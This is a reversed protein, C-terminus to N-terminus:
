DDGIDSEGRLQYTLELKRDLVPDFLECRMENEFLYGALLPVTGSFIVADETPAGREALLQLIEEPRKVADARGKQYATEEGGAYLWSRLEVRDWHERVDEFRWFGKGVPKGCRQKALLVDGAEAERDTHDSGIGIYVQGGHVLIVFEVEGSTRSGTRAIQGDAALLAPDCVFIEPVHAPPAVGLQEELERIHKRVMETNRGSYGIIYLHRCEMSLEQLGEPGDVAFTMRPNTREM